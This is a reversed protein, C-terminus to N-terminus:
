IHTIIQNPTMLFLTSMQVSSFSSMHRHTSKSTNSNYSRPESKWNAWERLKRDVVRVNLTM